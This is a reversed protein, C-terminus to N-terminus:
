GYGVRGVVNQQAVAEMQIQVVVFVAVERAPDGQFNDVGKRCFQEIGVILERHIWPPL